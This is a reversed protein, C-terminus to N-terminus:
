ICKSHDFPKHAFDCHRQSDEITNATSQLIVRVSVYTVMATYLRLHEDIVACMINLRVSAKVLRGTVINLIKIRTDKGSVCLLPEGTEDDM